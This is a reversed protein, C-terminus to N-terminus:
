KHAKSKAKMETKFERVRALSDTGTIDAISRFSGPEGFPESVKRWEPVNVGMQKGLLAVFIKAKMEGFGPLKKIRNLLETGDKVNQWIQSADNGYSKSVTSCVEQVRKAMAAPFRHLAPKESFIKELEGPDLSAIYSADLERGLRQSLLLPATFAKELPIQQDLVLGILLALPSSSLLDDAERNQAIALKPM